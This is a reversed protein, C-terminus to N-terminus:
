NAEQGRLVGDQTGSDHGKASQEGTRACVEPEYQPTHSLRAARVHARSSARAIAQEGGQMAPQREQPDWWAKDRKSAVQQRGGALQDEGEEWPVMDEPADHARAQWM